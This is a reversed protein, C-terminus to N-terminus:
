LHSTRQLSGSDIGVHLVSGRHNHNCQFTVFSVDPFYLLGMLLHETSHHTETKPLEYLRTYHLGGRMRSRLTLTHCTPATHPPQPCDQSNAQVWPRSEGSCWIGPARTGLRTQRIQGDFDPEEARSQASGVKYLQWLGTGARMRTTLDRETDKSLSLSLSRLISTWKGYLWLLQPQHSDM